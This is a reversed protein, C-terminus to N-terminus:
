FANQKSLLRLRQWFTSILGCSFTLGLFVCDLFVCDLYYSSLPYIAKFVLKLM